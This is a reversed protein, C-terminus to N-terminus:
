LSRPGQEAREIGAKMLPVRMQGTGRENEVMHFDLKHVTNQLVLPNRSGSVPFGCFAQPLVWPAKIMQQSGKKALDEARRIQWHELGKSKKM